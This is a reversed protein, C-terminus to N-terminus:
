VRSSKQIKKLSFNPKALTEGEVMSPKGVKRRLDQKKPHQKERFGATKGRLEQQTKGSNLKEVSSLPLQLFRGLSERFLPRTGL